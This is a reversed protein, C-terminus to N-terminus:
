RVADPNQNAGNVTAEAMSGPARKEIAALRQQVKQAESGDPTLELYDEYAKKADTWNQRRESLAGIALRFEPELPALETGRRYEALAADEDGVRELAQGLNFATAYSDSDRSASERYERVADEWRGSQALARALNFRFDARDPARAVAQEFLDVAEELRGLRMLTLAANNAAHANAPNAHFANKFETAADEYRGADYALQGTAVQDLFAREGPQVSAPDV